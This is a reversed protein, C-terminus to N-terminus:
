PARYAWGKGDCLSEQGYLPYGWDATLGCREITDRPATGIWEGTIQHRAEFFAIEKM